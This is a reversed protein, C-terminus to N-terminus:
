TVLRHLEAANHHRIGDRKPDLGWYDLTLMTFIWGGGSLSNVGLARGKLESPGKIKANVVFTGTLKNVFRAWFVADAGESIAGLNAATAWRNIIRAIARSEPPSRGPAWSQFIKKNESNRFRSPQRAIYFPM